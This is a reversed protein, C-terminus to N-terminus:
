ILADAPNFDRVDFDGVITFPASNYSYCFLESVFEYTAGGNTIKIYFEYVGDTGTFSPDTQADYYFSDFSTGSAITVLTTTLSTTSLVSRRGQSLESKDLKRVKFETVVTAGHSLVNGIYYFPLLYNTRCIPIGSWWSNRNGMKQYDQTQLTADGANVINIIRIM